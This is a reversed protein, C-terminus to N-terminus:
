NPLPAATIWSSELGSRILYPLSVTRFVFSASRDELGRLTGLEIRKQLNGRGKQQQFTAGTDPTSILRVAAGGV